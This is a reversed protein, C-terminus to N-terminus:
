SFFSFGMSSPPQYRTSKKVPAVDESDEDDFVQETEGQSESIPYLIGTFYRDFPNNEVLIDEPLNEGGILQKKVWEFLDKRSQRYNM